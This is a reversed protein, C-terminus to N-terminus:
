VQIFYAIAIRPWCAILGSAYALFREIADNFAAPEVL